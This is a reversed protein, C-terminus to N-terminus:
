LDLVRTCPPQTKGAHRRHRVRYGGRDDDERELGGQVSKGLVGSRQQGHDHQRHGGRGDQHAAGGRRWACRGLGGLWAAACASVGAAGAVGGARVRGHGRGRGGGRGRRRGRAARGARRWEVRVCGVCCSARRHPQARGLHRWVCAPQHQRQHDRRADRHGAHGGSVSALSAALHAAASVAASPCAAPAPVSRGVHRTPPRVLVLQPDRRCHRQRVAVHLQLTTTM